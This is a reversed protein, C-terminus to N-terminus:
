KSRKWYTVGKQLVTVRQEGEVSAPDLQAPSKMKDLKIYSPMSQTNQYTLLQNDVYVDFLDLFGNKVLGSVNEIASKYKKANLRATNDTYVDIKTDRSEIRTYYLIGVNNNAVNDRGIIYLGSPKADPKVAVAGAPATQASSKGKAVTQQFERAVDEMKKEATVPGAPAPAPVATKEVTTTHSVASRVDADADYFSGRMGSVAAKGLGSETLPQKTLREVQKEIQEVKKIISELEKKEASSRKNLKKSYVLVLAVTAAAALASILLAAIGLALGAGGSSPAADQVPPAPQRDSSQGASVVSNSTPVSTPASNVDSATDTSPDSIPDTVAAPDAPQSVSDPPVSSDEQGSTRRSTEGFVATYCLSTALALVALTLFLKAFVKRM